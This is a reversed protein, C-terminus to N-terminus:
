SKLPNAAHRLAQLQYLRFGKEHMALAQGGHAETQTSSTVVAVSLM